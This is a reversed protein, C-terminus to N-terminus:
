NTLRDVPSFFVQSRDSYDSPGFFIAGPGGTASGQQLDKEIERDEERGGERERENEGGSIHSALVARKRAPQSISERRRLNM